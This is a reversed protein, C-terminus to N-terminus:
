ETQSGIADGISALVPDTEEAVLEIWRYTGFAEAVARARPDSRALAADREAFLPRFQGGLWRALPNASTALGKVSRVAADRAAEVAVADAPFLTEGDEIRAALADLARLRVRALATRTLATAPHDPTWDDVPVPDFRLDEFTRYNARSLLSVSPADRPVSRDDLFAEM